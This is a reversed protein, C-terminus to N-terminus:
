KHVVYLYNPGREDALDGGGRTGACGSAVVPLDDGDVTPHGMSMM